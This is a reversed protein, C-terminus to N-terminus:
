EQNTTWTETSATSNDATITGSTSAIDLVNYARTTKAQFRITMDARNYWQNNVLEPAATIEPAADTLKIDATALQELNQRIYLGDRLTEANGQANPGYMSVAVEYNVWRQLVDPGGAQHAIVPYDLARRAAIGVAVWNVTNEPSRPPNPQWRPRVLNGPIGVVAGIAATLSDVLLDDALAPVTQTLYGGTASSNTDSM